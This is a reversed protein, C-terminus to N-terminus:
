NEESIEKEGAPAGRRSSGLGPTPPPEATAQASRLSRLIQSIRRRSLGYHAAVADPPMGAAL